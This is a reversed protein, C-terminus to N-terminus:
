KQVLAMLEVLFLEVLFDDRRAGLERLPRGAAQKKAATGGTSLSLPASFPKRALPPGLEFCEIGAQRRPSRAMERQFAQLLGPKLSLAKM